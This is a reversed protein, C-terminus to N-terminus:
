VLIVKGIIDKKHILGGGKNDGKIFYYSGFKKVIRKVLKKGSDAVIIEGIKPNKFYYSIKETLVYEGDKLTPYMSNGSVKFRQVM